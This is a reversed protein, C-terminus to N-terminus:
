RRLRKDAQPLFLRM